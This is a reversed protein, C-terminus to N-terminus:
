EILGKRMAYKILGASNKVGLKLFINKRHTKVTLVSLHLKEAIQETTLEDAVLRIIEIERESLKKGYITEKQQHSKIFNQMVEPSLYSGTAMVTRIAKLFDEKGSNKLIYGQAGARLMDKIYAQENYMTLALVKLNPQLALAKKTLAVGDMEPMEVDTIMLDPAQQAILALAEQGSTVQGILQIDTETTLFSALGDLLIQHDDVIVVTIM